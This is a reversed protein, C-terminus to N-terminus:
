VFSGLHSSSRIASVKERDWLETLKSGGSDEGVFLVSEVDLAFGPSLKIYIYSPYFARGRIVDSSVLVYKGQDPDFQMTWTAGFGSFNPTITVNNKDDRSSTFGFFQDELYNLGHRKSPYGLKAAEAQSKEEIEVWEAVPVNKEPVWFWGIVNKNKSRAIYMLLNNYDARARLTKDIVRLDEDIEADTKATIQGRYASLFKTIDAMDTVGTISRPM